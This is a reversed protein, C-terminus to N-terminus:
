PNNEWICRWTKASLVRGVTRRTVGFRSAIERHVWGARYLVFAEIVAGDTLKSLSQGEGRKRLAGPVAMLSEEATYGRKIRQDILSWRIGLEEAWAAVCQTRGFAEVLVNNRRNRLQERWTAWRCNGPEYNGDNDIRDLTHESSPKLGMDDCFVKFSDRWEECVSIGRGGWNAFSPHNPNHCRAKM